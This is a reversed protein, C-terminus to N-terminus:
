FSLKLVYILIKCMCRQGWFTKVGATTLLVYRPCFTISQLIASTMVSVSGGSNYHLARTQHWGSVLLSYPLNGKSRDCHFAGFIRMNSEGHRDTQGCSLCFFTKVSKWLNEYRPINSSDTSMSCTQNFRVRCVFTYSALRKDSRFINRLFLNYHPIFSACM